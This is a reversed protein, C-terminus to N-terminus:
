QTATMPTTITTAPPPPQPAVCSGANTAVIHPPVCATQSQAQAQSLQQLFAWLHSIDYSCDKPQAKYTLVGNEIVYFRLPWACYVSDFPEGIPDIVMPWQFQYREVFRQAVDLREENTKPQNIIVPVKDHYRPSSIPWEDQAHAEATYVCLFDVADQFESKMEHFTKM